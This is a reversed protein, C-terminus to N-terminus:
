SLATTRCLEIWIAGDSQFTISSFKGATTAQTGSSHFTSAFTATVTGSGDARTLITLLDGATGTGTPTFTVTASTGNAVDIIHSGYTVDINMTSAFTDTPQPSVELKKAILATTATLTASSTTGAASQLSGSATFLQISTPPFNPLLAVNTVGVGTLDYDVTTANTSVGKVVDGSEVPINTVTAQENPALVIRALRRATGGNRLVTILITETTSGSTNALKLSWLDRGTATGLAAATSALQGNGILLSM